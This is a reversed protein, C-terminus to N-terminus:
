KWLDEKTKKLNIIYFPTYVRKRGVQESKMVTVRDFKLNDIKYEGLEQKIYELSSNLKVDQAITVHPTFSRDSKFGYEGATGEVIKHVKFLENMQGSLELYVTKITEEGFGFTGLGQISLVFEEQDMLNMELERALLILKDEEVEGLFKLTIHFNDIYKFRGGKSNIRILNQIEAIREKTSSNFELTIFARM